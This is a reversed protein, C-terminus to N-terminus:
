WTSCLGVGYGGAGSAHKVHALGSQFIGWTADYTEMQLMRVNKSEKLERALVEWRWFLPGWDAGDFSLLKGEAELAAGLGKM